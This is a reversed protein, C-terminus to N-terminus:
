RSQYTKVLRVWTLGTWDDTSNTIFVPNFNLKPLESAREVAPLVFGFSGMKPGYLNPLKTKGQVPMKM